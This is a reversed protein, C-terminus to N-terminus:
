PFRTYNTLKIGLTDDGRIPGLSVTTNSRSTTNSRRHGIDFHNAFAGYIYSPLLRLIPETVDLALFTLLSCVM